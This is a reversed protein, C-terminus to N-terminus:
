NLLSLIQQTTQNAQAMISQGVQELINQRLFQVMIEAMDADRIRSEATTTNEVINNEYDICATMGNIYAGMQSRYASVKEIVKDIIEITAEATEVTDGAVGIMNLADVDVHPLRIVQYQSAEAGYQIRIDKDNEEKDADVWEWIVKEEAVIVEKEKEVRVVENYEEWGASSAVFTGKNRAEPTMNPASSTYGTYGVKLQTGSFTCFMQHGVATSYSYTIGGGANYTGSPNNDKLYKKLDTLFDLGNTYNKTGVHYTSSGFATFDKFDVSTNSNYIGDSTNDFVFKAKQPCDAPCGFSITAQNLKEWDEQSTINKFDIAYYFTYYDKTMAQYYKYSYVQDSEVGFYEKVYANEGGWVSRTMTVEEEVIEKIVETRYTTEIRSVYQKGAVISAGSGQLVKINNFETTNGIRDIEIKLQQIEENIAVRDNHSNTGNASQISLENIRQLIDGVEALAGDAVQCLSVGEETNKVGQTLGRVQRRMKESISLGAADDSARNIRYGSSLKETVKSKNKANIGFQRQANLACMNHLIVM